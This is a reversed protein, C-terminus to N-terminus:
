ARGELLRSYVSMMRRATERADFMAAARKRGAEGLRRAEEPSSVIRSIAAALQPVDGPPVLLGTEGDVVIEAPGAENYAVVPLGSAMAEVLVRGFPERRSPLVLLSASRLLEPVDDQYGTFRLAGNVGLKSALTGLFSRYDPHDNFLDNGVIQFKISPLTEHVVSAAQLFDRQGKWPVLQGVMVVVASNPQRSPPHFRELDVGNYIVEAEIGVVAKVRGAIFRSVAVCASPRAFGRLALSAIGPISADRVHWVSPVGRRRAAASAYLHATTSNSHVLDIEADKIVRRLERVGRRWARFYRALRIPSATRKLRVIPVPMVPVGLSELRECLPGGPPCAVFASFGERLAGVLELLSNEAGSVQSTHHVYLIRPM